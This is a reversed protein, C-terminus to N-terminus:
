ETAEETTFIGRKAGPLPKERLMTEILSVVEDYNGTLTHTIIEQVGDVGAFINLVEVSGGIGSFNMENIAAALRALEDFLLAPAAAPALAAPKLVAAIDAALADLGALFAGNNKEIFPLDGSNGAAELAAAAQSLSDAGINALAGKLAHVGITYLRVEGSKWFAELEKTKELADKQFIGLVFKYNKLSGGSGALGQKVNLGPIALDGEPEEPKEHTDTQSLKVQKAKPIWKELILNLKAIDIPKFLFDDFGNEIFMNEVGSIANATLVIIPVSKYHGGAGDYQRILKTAEIGDIDPMMHDMLILDYVDWEVAEVAKKGSSCINVQVEYPKLLGKVVFLNTEIDDVILINADPATFTALQGLTDTQFPKETKGNLVNAISLSHAPLVLTNAKPSGTNGAFDSIMVIKMNAANGEADSAAAAATA